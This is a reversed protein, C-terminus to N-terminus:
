DKSATKFAAKFDAETVMVCKTATKPNVCCQQKLAAWLGDSDILKKVNSEVTLALAMFGRERAEDRRPLDAPINDVLVRLAEDKYAILDRLRKIEDTQARLRQPSVGGCDCAPCITPGGLSLGYDTAGCIICPGKISM